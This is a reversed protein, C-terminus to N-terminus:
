RASALTVHLTLEKGDRVVVVDVTDGPRNNRTAAMYDYINAIENSNIRIIRDGAKMGALEAPGDPNTSDVGMGATGDNVYSPALGMVVRYSPMDNSTRETAQRVVHFEPREPEDALAVATRYVLRAIQGGGSANIKDADDSPKHYDAHHGSFFHLSPIQKYVFSAHDTNGGPEPISKITLGVKEAAQSLIESFGTGCETGFVQVDHTGPKMRGIMDMNLMAVVQDLPVAPHEVYYKSGQLGTEEATFAAFLINRAPPPGGAFMRGIEILGAVGSANDDAGNHIQPEVPGAVLKGDKFRRMMPKRIGLHDYHAGIVITGKQAGTGRWLALVNRTPANRREFVAQGNAQHHPLMSSVFESKDLRSQLADLSGLGSGSLLTEATARTVHIAPIGYEDAGDSDFESLADLEGEAPKANFMLVAVAGRDKANYIKDRFTAHHTPYGNEDAWSSPEGRFMVAVQGSLDLGAFDDHKKEPAAIGYGCFTIGGSFAESSSFSFPIFDRHQLLPGVGTIVLKGADTLTRHLTISFTQFFSEDDGAPKLGIQKFQDAIYEAALDLGHSGVGRGELRDSALYNVHDQFRGEVDSARANGMTATLAIASVVVLCKCDIRGIRIKNM